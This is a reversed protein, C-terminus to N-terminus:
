RLPRFRAWACLAKVYPTSCTTISAALLTSSTKGPITCLCSGIEIGLPASPGRCSIRTTRRCNEQDSLVLLERTTRGVGGVRRHAGLSPTSSSQHRRRVVPAQNQHCSFPPSFLRRSLFVSPSFSAARDKKYARPSSYRTLAYPRSSRSLTRPTRCPPQPRIQRTPGV